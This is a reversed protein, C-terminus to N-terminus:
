SPERWRLKDTLYFACSGGVLFYAVSLVVSLVGARWGFQFFAIVILGQWMTFLALSLPTVSQAALAFCFAAGAVSIFLGLQLILLGERRTMASEAVLSSCFLGGVVIFVVVALLRSNMASRARLMLESTGSLTM